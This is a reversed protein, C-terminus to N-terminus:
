SPALRMLVGLSIAACVAGFVYSFCDGFVGFGWVEEVGEGADVAFGGGPGDEAEVEAGEIGGVCVWAFVTETWL